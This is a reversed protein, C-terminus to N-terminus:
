FTKIDYIDLFIIDDVQM